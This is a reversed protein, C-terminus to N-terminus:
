LPVQRFVAKVAKRVKRLMGCARVGGVRFLCRKLWSDGWVAGEVLSEALRVFERALNKYSLSYAQIARELCVKAEVRLYDDRNHRKKLVDARRTHTRLLAAYGEALIAKDTVRSGDHERVYTWADPEFTVRPNCSLLRFSLDYDHRCVLEEDYGGSKAVLERRTMWVPTGPHLRGHLFGSCRSVEPM